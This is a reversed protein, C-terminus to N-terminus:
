QMTYNKKFNKEPNYPFGPPLPSGPSSPSFPSVPKGPVVPGKPPGPRIPGGTLVAPNLVWHVWGEVCVCVCVCVCTHIMCVCEQGGTWKTNSLTSNHSSHPVFWASIILRGLMWPFFIRKGYTVCAISSRLKKEWKSIYNVYILKYYM